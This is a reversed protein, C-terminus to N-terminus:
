KYVGHADNYQLPMETEVRVSGARPITPKVGSVTIKAALLVIPGFHARWSEIKSEVPQWVVTISGWVSAAIWGLVACRKVLCLNELDNSVMRGVVGVTRHVKVESHLRNM